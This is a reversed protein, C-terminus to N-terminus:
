AIECSRWCGAVSYTAYSRLDQGEYESEYENQVEDEFEDEFESEFENQMTEGDFM